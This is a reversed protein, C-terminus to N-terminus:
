FRFGVRIAGYPGNGVELRDENRDDYKKAEFYFRDFAYGGSVDITAFGLGWQLGASLRKEYYFLRENKDRRDARIYRENRWEFGGYARLAQWLRYSVRAQVNRVAFYSLDVAVDKVPRLQASLFPIGIIFRYEESPEYSYGVGPIPVHPLFERNNAYNLLLLWANREGHPIRAFLNANITLEDDSAFPRDSASGVTLFAGGIWDNPFKHRYLGGGNIDWLESPFSERTDPLIADTRVNTYRLNGTVAWEQHSDQTIPHFLSFGHQNLGLEKGQGAVDKGPYGAYQYSLNTQSKGM